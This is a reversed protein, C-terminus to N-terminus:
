CEHCVGGEVHIQRNWNVSINGGHTCVVMTGTYSNLQETLYAVSDRDLHNTPEDLIMLDSPRALVASLYFKKREGPSMESLPKAVLDNISFGYFHRDLANREVNGSECMAEALEKAPINLEPEEQLSFACAEPRVGMAIEGSDASEIGMIIRLMTSKGSGNDGSLLVKDKDRIQCTAGTLVQKDDFSKKLNRVDIIAKSATYHNEVSKLGLRKCAEQYDFQELRMDFVSSISSFLYGSLIILLPAKEIGLGGFLVFLGIILYSGYRLLNDIASFIMNEVTAVQEGRKGSKIIAGNLETFKQMYWKELGYAKITRIGAYGELLWDCYTEEDSHTQNYIQRAWKEYVLIPLLQTLNLAFFILGVRWDSLCILVTSTILIILGGVAKPCTKQFYQAITKVDSTLRVNMEGKNDVDVCRKLVGTYLFERFKQTDEMQSNSRHVALLYRPVISVTLAIATLVARHYMEQWAKSITLELLDSVLYGCLLMFGYCVIEYVLGITQSRRFFSSIRKM